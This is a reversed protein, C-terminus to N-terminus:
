GLKNDNCAEEFKDRDFKPNEDEFYLVLDHVLNDKRLYLDITGVIGVENDAIIKAVAIYDKKTM